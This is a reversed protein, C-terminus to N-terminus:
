EEEKKKENEKFLALSIKSEEIHKLRDIQRDYDELFSSYQLMLEYRCIMSHLRTYIDYTVDECKYVKLRLDDVDLKKLQDKSYDLLYEM